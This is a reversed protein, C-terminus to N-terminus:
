QLVYQIDSGDSGKFSAKVLMGDPGYWLDRELEGSMVFHRARVTENYAVINEEGGFAVDVAMLHGDLTNLISASGPRALDPHWLSAPIITPNVSSSKGDGIVKLASGGGEVTLAHNAGDDDTSSILSSLRGDTWVENGEHNFHYLPIFALKVEVDTKIHVGVRKGTNSFEIVHTGITEGKRIVTFNLTAGDHVSIESASVGSPILSAFSVISFLLFYYVQAHVRRSM